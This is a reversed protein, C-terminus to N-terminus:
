EDALMDRMVGPIQLIKLAHVDLQCVVLSSKERVDQGISDAGHAAFHPVRPSMLEALLQAALFLREAAKEVSDLRAM